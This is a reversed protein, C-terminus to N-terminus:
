GRRVTIGEDSNDGGCLISWQQGTLSYTGSRMLLVSYHEPTALPDRSPLPHVVESSFNVNM